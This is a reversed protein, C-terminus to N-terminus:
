FGDGEEEKENSWWIILGDNVQNACLVLVSILKMITM